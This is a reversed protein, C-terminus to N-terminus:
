VVQVAVREGLHSVMHLVLVVLLVLVVQVAVREGLHPVWIWPVM